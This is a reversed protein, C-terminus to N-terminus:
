TTASPERERANQVQPQDFFRAVGHIARWATSACMSCDRAEYLGLRPHARAITQACHDGEIFVSGRVDVERVTHHMDLRGRKPAELAEAGRTDLERTLRLVLDGRPLGLVGFRLALTFAILRCRSIRDRDGAM